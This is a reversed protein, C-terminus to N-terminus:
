KPQGGLMVSGNSECTQRGECAGILSDLRSDPVSDSYSRANAESYLGLAVLLGALLQRKHHM